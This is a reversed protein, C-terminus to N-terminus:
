LSCGVSGYSSFQYTSNNMRMWNQSQYGYSGPVHSTNAGGYHTYGGCWKSASAPSSVLVAALLVSSVLGARIKSRM